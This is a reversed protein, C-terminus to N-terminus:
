DKGAPLLKGASWAQVSDVRYAISIVAPQSATYRRKSQELRYNDGNMQLIHIHHTLRDLPVGTPRESAFVSTWEDVLLNFTVITAGREYCQSFVEFLLEAVTCRRRPGTPLPLLRDLSARGYGLLWRPTQVGSL